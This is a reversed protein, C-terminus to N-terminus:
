DKIIDGSDRTMFSVFIDPDISSEVWKVAGDGMGFYAGGNHFSYIEDINNCNFFSSGCRNHVVYWNTYQAWSKGASTCGSEQGPTCPKSYDPLGNVYKMPDAGTEFWM